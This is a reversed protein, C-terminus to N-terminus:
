PPKALAQYSTAIIGVTDQNPTSPHKEWEGLLESNQVIMRCREYRRSMFNGLITKLPRNSRLLMALVISDEIAISAGSALHPTTTHAADGIVITRGLYWPPQLIMSFVPRCVIQRAYRIEDRARGLVGGFEALLDRLIPPLDTDDWHPREALTQVTYVYM